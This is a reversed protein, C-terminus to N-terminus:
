KNYWEWCYGFLFDGNSLEILVKIFKGSGDSPLTYDTYGHGLMSEAISSMEYDGYIKCKNWSLDFFFDWDPTNYPPIRYFNVDSNDSLIIALPLFHYYINGTYPCIYKFVNKLNEVDIGMRNISVWPNVSFGYSIFRGMEESDKVKRVIYEGGSLIDGCDPVYPSNQIIPKIKNMM